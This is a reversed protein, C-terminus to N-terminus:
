PQEEFKGGYKERLRAKRAAADMELATLRDREELIQEAKKSKAVDYFTRGGVPVKIMFLEIAAGVAFSVPVTVRLIRWTSRSM